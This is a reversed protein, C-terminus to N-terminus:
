DEARKSVSSFLALGFAPTVRLSTGIVENPDERTITAFLRSAKLRPYSLLEIPMVGM